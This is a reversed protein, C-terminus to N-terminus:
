FLGKRLRKEVAKKAESQRKDFLKKGKGLAIEVKVLSKKFYLMTPILTLGKTQLEHHIKQIEKKSLLLKRKRKEQHNSRNGFDYPPISMQHIWAEESQDIQVFAERISAKGLRLSKVETGTLVLGAEIKQLLIYDFHARKNKAIIKIGM